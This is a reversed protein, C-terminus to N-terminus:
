YGGGGFSRLENSEYFQLDALAMGRVLDAFDKGGAKDGGLGTFNTFMWRVQRCDECVYLKPCNLPSLPKDRDWYLLSNVHTYGIAKEVGSWPTFMMPPNLEAFQQYLNTGGQKEIHENSAARPDIFREFIEERAAVQYPPGAPGGPRPARVPTARVKGDHPQRGTEENMRRGEDNMMELLRWQEALQQTGFGLSRQAPGRRGDPQKPDDSPVAWEGYTQEDPWDRYIYHWGRSDVGVWITAWNRSADGPDTLMYFTMKKPLHKRAIVNWEGYIPFAKHRTDRAYGYANEMIVDSTKGACFAKVNAYNDGFVNFESFFFIAGWNNREARQRYPMHGAPVNPLNVRDSLLEAPRSELTEATGLVQKIAPTIGETTSFTWVGKAGYTASRLECTELWPFPMDEDAWWGLNEIDKGPLVRAGRTESHAGCESDALRQMNRETETLPMGERWPSGISWGQYSKVEMEYTLFHIKSKNPLVLVGDAFGNKQSFSVAFIKRRDQKANLAKIELPLYKWILPQQTAISTTANGQFCWIISRPFKLAAQVVRKAARESKSARKGGAVYLFKFERAMTDADRWPALEFGYRLPNAGDGDGALFIREERERYLQAVREPGGPARVAALLEGDTFWPLIPHGTAPWEARAAALMARDPASMEQYPPGAPGGREPTQVTESM